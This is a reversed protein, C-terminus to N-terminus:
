GTEHPPTSCDWSGCLSSSCTSLSRRCFSLASSAQSSLTCGVGCRGHASSRWRPWSYSWGWIVLYERKVKVIARVGPVPNLGNISNDLSVRLLGMPLYSLGPLLLAWGIWFNTDRVWTDYLYYPGITLAGLTVVFRLPWLVTDEYDGIQPMGPPEAGGQASSEVVSMAYGTFYGVLIAYVAVQALLGIIPLFLAFYVTYRGVIILIM